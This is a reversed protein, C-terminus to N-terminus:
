IFMHMILMGLSYPDLMNFMKVMPIADEMPLTFVGMTGSIGIGPFCESEPNVWIRPSMTMGNTSLAKETQFRELSKSSTEFETDNVNPFLEYLHESILSVSREFLAVFSFFKKQPIFIGDEFSRSIRIGFTNYVKMRGSDTSRINRYDGEKNIDCTYTVRLDKDASGVMLLHDVRM